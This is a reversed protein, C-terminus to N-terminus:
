ELSSNLMYPRAGALSVARLDSFLAHRKGIRAWGKFWYIGSRGLMLQLWKANPISCTVPTENNRSNKEVDEWFPAHSFSQMAKIPSTITPNSLMQFAVHEPTMIEVTKKRCRRLIPCSFLSQMAKIPSTITPNCLAWVFIAEAGSPRDAVRQVQVLLLQLANTTWHYFKRRGRPLDPDLERGICPCGGKLYSAPKCLWYFHEFKLLQLSRQKPGVRFLDNM